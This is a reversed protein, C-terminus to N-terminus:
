RLFNDREEQRLNSFYNVLRHVVVISVIGRGSNTLLCSRLVESIENVSNVKLFKGYSLEWSTPIDESEV